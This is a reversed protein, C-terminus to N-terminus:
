VTLATNMEIYVPIATNV